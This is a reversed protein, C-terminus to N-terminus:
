VDQGENTVAAPQSTNARAWRPPLSDWNGVVVGDLELATIARLITTGLYGTYTRLDNLSCAAGLPIADLVRARVKPHVTPGLAVREVSVPKYTRMPRNWKSM